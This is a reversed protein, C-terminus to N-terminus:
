VEIGIMALLEVPQSKPWSPPPGGQLPPRSTVSGSWVFAISPAKSGFVFVPNDLEGVTSRIACRCPIVAIQQQAAGRAIEGGARGRQDDVGLGLIRGTHVADGPR